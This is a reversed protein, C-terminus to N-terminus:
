QVYFLELYQQDEPQDQEACQISPKHTGIAGRGKKKRGFVQAIHTSCAGSDHTEGRANEDHAPVDGGKDEKAPM